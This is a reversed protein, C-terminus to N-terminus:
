ANPTTARLLERAVRAAPIDSLCVNGDAHACRRLFCPACDPQPDARLVAHRPVTDAAFQARDAREVGGGTRDVRDPRRVRDPPPWPGTRHEDQPGALAVVRLGVAAALHAPGSDGALLVGGREAAAAFVAALARLGRQGVCHAVRPDAVRRELDEGVAREAPGSILLPLAGDDALLLAAAAIRAPPWSRPDDARGVAILIPARGDAHDGGVRLALEARGAAREDDTLPLRPGRAADPEHSANVSLDFTTAGTRSAGEASSDARAAGTTSPKSGSVWRALARMRDVAHPGEDARPARDTMAFAASRERWDARAPGTRRPAGSALCVMASKWNGQADVVWQADFSALRERLRPWAAAGGRRDFTLVDDLGPLGELLPAFEAQVVWGIRADPHAARLAHFVPLAHIVDGLHSLRVILIRTPATM